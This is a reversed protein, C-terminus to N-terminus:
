VNYLELIRELDIEAVYARNSIRFNRAVAPHVEGYCAILEGQYYIAGQRGPHFSPNDGHAWKLDPSEPIVLEMLGKLDYFDFTEEGHSWNPENRLGWLAIAVKYDE